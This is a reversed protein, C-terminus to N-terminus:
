DQIKERAINFETSIETAMKEGLSALHFIMTDLSRGIHLKADKTKIIFRIFRSSNNYNQNNNSIRMQKQYRPSRTLRKYKSEQIRYSAFSCCFFVSFLFIRENCRCYKVATTPLNLCQM